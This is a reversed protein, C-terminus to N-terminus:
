VRIQKRHAEEKQIRLERKYEQRFQASSMKIYKTLVEFYMSELSEKYDNVKMEDEDHFLTLWVNKLDKSEQLSSYIYSYFNQGYLNLNEITELQQIQHDLDLFFQFGENTVCTLSSLATQKRQIESLSEQDKSSKALINENGALQDLFRIERDMKDVQLKVSKKYLNSTVFSKKRRRITATCWGGIYRIKARSGKSQKVKKVKVKATEKASIYVPQSAKHVIISRLKQM